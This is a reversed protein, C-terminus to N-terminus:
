RDEIHLLRHYLRAIMLAAHRRRLRLPDDVSMNIELVLLHYHLHLHFHLYHDEGINHHGQAHNIIKDIADKGHHVVVHHKDSLITGVVQFEHHCHAHHHHDQGVEEEESGKEKEKEKFVKEDLHDHDEGLVAHDQDQDQALFHHSQRLMVFDRILTM